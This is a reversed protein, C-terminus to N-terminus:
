NVREKGQTSVFFKNKRCHIISRFSFTRLTPPPSTETGNKDPQIGNIVNQQRTKKHFMNKSIKIYKNEHCSSDKRFKMM